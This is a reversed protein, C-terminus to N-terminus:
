WFHRVLMVDSFSRILVPCLVAGGDGSVGITSFRRLAEHQFQKLVGSSRRSAVDFYRLAAYRDIYFIGGAALAWWAADGLAADLVTEEPGGGVRM